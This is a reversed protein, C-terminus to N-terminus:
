PRTWRLAASRPSPSRPCPGRLERASSKLKHLALMIIIVLIILVVTIDTLSLCYNITVITTTISLSPSIADPCRRRAESVALPKSLKQLFM